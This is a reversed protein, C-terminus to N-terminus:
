TLFNDVVGGTLERLWQLRHTQTTEGTALAQRHAFVVRAWDIEYHRVVRGAATRWEFGKGRDAPMKLPTAPIDDRFRARVLGTVSHIRDPVPRSGLVERLQALQWGADMRQRILGAIERVATDPIRGFTLPIVQDCLQRDAGMGTVSSAFPAGKGDPSQSDADFAFGFRSGGDAPAVAGLRDGVMPSFDGEGLGSEGGGGSTSMPSLPSPPYDKVRLTNPSRGATSLQPATKQAATIVACGSRRNKMEEVKPVAKRKRQDCQATNKVANGSSSLHRGSGAVRKAEYPPLEGTSVSEIKVLFAGPPLEIEELIEEASAPEDTVVTLSRLRGDVRVLYRHRLGAAELEAHAKRVRSEGAGRGVMERYGLPTGPRLSLETMLLGLAEYSLGSLIVKNSLSTSGRRVVYFESM